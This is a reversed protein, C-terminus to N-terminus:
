QRNMFKRIDPILHSNSVDNRWRSKIAFLFCRVKKKSGNEKRESGVSGSIKLTADVRLAGGSTHRDRTLAHGNSHMDKRPPQTCCRNEVRSGCLTKPPEESVKQNRFGSRVRRIRYNLRPRKSSQSAEKGNSLSTREGCRRAIRALQSIEAGGSGENPNRPTNRTRSPTRRESLSMAPYNENQDHIAQQLFPGGRLEKIIIHRSVKM